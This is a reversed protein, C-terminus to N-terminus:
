KDTCARICPSLNIECYNIDQTAEGWCFSDTCQRTVMQKGKGDIRGEYM